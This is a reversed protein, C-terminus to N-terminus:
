SCINKSIKRRFQKRSLQTELAAWRLQIATSIMKGNVLHKALYDRRRPGPLFIDQKQKFFFCIWFCLMVSAIIVDDSTMIM